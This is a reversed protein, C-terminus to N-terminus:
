LVVPGSKLSASGFSGDKRGVLAVAGVAVPFTAGGGTVGGM